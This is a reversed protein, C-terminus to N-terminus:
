EERGSGDEGAGLSQFQPNGQRNEVVKCIIWDSLEGAAEGKPQGGGIWCGADVLAM